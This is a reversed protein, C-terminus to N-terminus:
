RDRDGTEGRSAAFTLDNAADRKAAVPFDDSGILRVTVNAFLLPWFPMAPRDHRSAYAAIVGGLAIVEADLEANDSLDVEIIRDVGDPAHVRIADVAHDQDLAVPHLSPQISRISM